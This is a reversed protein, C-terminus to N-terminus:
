NKVKGLKPSSFLYFVTLLVRGVMMWVVPIVTVRLVCWCSLTHTTTPINETDFASVAECEVGLDVAKGCLTVIVLLIRSLKTFM